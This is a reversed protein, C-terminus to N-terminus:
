KVAVHIAVVGFFYRRWRVKRFGSELLQKKLENVSYYRAASEALYRYAPCNGSLWAGVPYAAFRLYMHFLSRVLKVPPQSTEVIVFRGGERLVWLVEALYRGRVPNQYTLNRFAFSIGIADFCGDPFPM